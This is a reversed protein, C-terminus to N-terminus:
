NMNYIPELGQRRMNILIDPSQALVTSESWARQLDSEPIDGNVIKQAVEAWTNMLNQEADTGIVQGLRISFEKSLHKVACGFSGDKDMIMFINDAPFGLKHWFQHVAWIERYIEDYKYFSSM